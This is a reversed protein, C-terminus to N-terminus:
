EGCVNPLLATVGDREREREREREGCIHMYTDIHKMEISIYVNLIHIIM